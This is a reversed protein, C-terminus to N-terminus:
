NGIFLENASSSPMVHQLRYPEIKTNSKTDDVKLNFVDILDTNRYIEKSHFNVLYGYIEFM